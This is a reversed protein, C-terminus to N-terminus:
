GKVAGMTIGKVFYDQFFPYIVLIPIIGLMAAAMRVTESPMVTGTGGGQMLYKTNENIANLINQIGYLKANDLYYMGNQWDNWYTVGVLLGLTAIIPKSLPMVLTFFVRYENAGDIRAAELLEEPINNQFYNRVMTIYFANTLLNPLILAFLTNKIHFTNSYMIYTAVLGGNFLMTFIVYFNFFRRLPLDRKSLMYAFMLTILVCVIVGVVTVFFTILYGRGFLVWKEILYRYADLSWKKPILRYGSNVATSEDTFSAMILLWFPLIALVSVIILVIHSLALFKKHGKM